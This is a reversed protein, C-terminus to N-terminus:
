PTSAPVATASAGHRGSGAVDATCGATLGAAMVAGTADLFARRSPRHDARHM